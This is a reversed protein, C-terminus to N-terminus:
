LPIKKNEIIQTLFKSAMELAKLDEGKIKVNPETQIAVIAGIVDNGNIMPVVGFSEYSEEKDIIEYNAEEKKHIVEKKNMSEEIEKGVGKNKYTKSHLRSVTIVNEKDCILIGCKLNESLSDAFDDSYDTINVVPAYKKLIIGKERDTFVELPTGEKIRLTKRIEKPVVIRGLDDIRRVIGTSKM